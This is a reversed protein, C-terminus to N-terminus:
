LPAKAAFAFLHKPLGKAYLKKVDAMSLASPFVYIDDIAGIYNYGGSCGMIALYMTTCSQHNKVNSVSAVSRGDFYLTMTQSSSNYTLTVLYWTNPAPRPGDVIWNPIYKQIGSNDDYFSGFVNGQNSIAIYPLNYSLIVQWSSLSSTKFWASLTWSSGLTMASNAYAYNTGDFSLANGIVGPVFSPNGVLTLNNNNASSDTTDDLHYIANADVGLAHYNTSSFEMDAGIRGKDRAGSLAVLVVSSLMSIISVVVLLEILTFGKTQQKGTPM